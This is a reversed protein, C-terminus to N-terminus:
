EVGALGRQRIAERRCRQIEGASRLDGFTSNIANALTGTPAGRKRSMITWFMTHNV